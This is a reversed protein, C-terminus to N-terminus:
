FYRRQYPAQHASRENLGTTFCSTTLGWLGSFFQQALVDRNVRGGSMRDLLSNVPNLALLPQFPLSLLGASVKLLNSIISM